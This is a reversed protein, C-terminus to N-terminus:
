RSSPISVAAMRRPAYPGTGWDADSAQSDLHLVSIGDTSGETFAFIRDVMNIFGRDICSVCTRPLQVRSVPFESFSSQWSDIWRHGDAIPFLPPLTARQGVGSGRYRGCIQARAGDSDPDPEIVTKFTSQWCQTASFDGASPNLDPEQPARWPVAVRFEDTHLSAVEDLLERIQSQEDTTFVPRLEKPGLIRRVSFHRVGVDRAARACALVEHFNVSSLLFTAGIPTESEIDSYHGSLIEMSELIQTVPIRNGHFRMRTEDTAANLSVRVYCNGEAIRRLDARHLFDGSTLITTKLGFRAAYEVLGGSRVDPHLLPDGGGDFRVIRGGRVAFTRIIEEALKTPITATPAISRYAASFCHGGCDSSACRYTPDLELTLPAPPRREELDLTRIVDLLDETSGPVLEGAHAPIELLRGDARVVVYTDYLGFRQWPTGVIWRGKFVHRESGISLTATATM